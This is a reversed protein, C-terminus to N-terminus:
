IYSSYPDITVIRVLFPPLISHFKENHVIRKVAIGAFGCLHDRLFKVAVSTLYYKLFRYRSGAEFLNQYASPLGYEALFRLDFLKWVIWLVIIQYHDACRYPCSFAGRRYPAEYAGALDRFPDASEEGEASATVVFLAHALDSFLQTTM